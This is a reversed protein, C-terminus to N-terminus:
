HTFIAIAGIRVLLTLYGISRIEKMWTYVSVIRLVFPRGRTDSRFLPSVCLLRDSLRRWVDQPRESHSDELALILLVYGDFRKKM